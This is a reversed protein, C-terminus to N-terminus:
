QLKGLEEFCLGAADFCGDFFAKFLEQSLAIKRKEDSSAEIDKQIGRMETATRSMVRKMITYASGSGLVKERAKLVREQIGAYKEQELMNTPDLHKLKRMWKRADGCLGMVSKLEALASWRSVHYSEQDWNSPSDHVSKLNGWIDALRPKHYEVLADPLIKSEAGRILAGEPSTQIVKAKTKAIEVEFATVYSRFNPLARVTGGRVCPIDVYSMGAPLGSVNGGWTHPTGEAHTKDGPLSLDVGVLMIPDCGVARAFCFASHAVTMARWDVTRGPSFRKAWEWVAIGCDTNIKPGQWGAPIPPHTDGDWLLATRPDHQVGDFFKESHQSLDLQVVVHPIIGNRVLLPYAKGVCIMFLKDQHTKLHPIATELSPGAAIVAATVGSLRGEYERVMRSTPLNALNRISNRTLWDAYTLLTNIEVQRRNIAGSLAEAISIQFQSTQGKIDPSLIRISFAESDILFQQLSGQVTGLDPGAFCKIRSDSKLREEGDIAGFDEANRSVVAVWKGAPLRGFFERADAGSEGLGNLVYADDSGDGFNDSIYSVCEGGKRDQMGDPIDDAQDDV